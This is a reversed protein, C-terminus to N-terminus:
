KLNFSASYSQGFVDDTVSVLLKSEVFVAVKNGKIGFIDLSNIYLTYSGNPLCVWQSYTDFPKRYPGGGAVVGGNENTVKWSLLQPNAATTVKVFFDGACWDFERGSLEDVNYPLSFVMEENVGFKTSGGIMLSDSFILYNGKPGLGDGRTNTINFSYRGPPVCENYTLNASQKLPGEQIFVERTDIDLLEWTLTHGYYKHADDLDAEILVLFNECGFVTPKSTPAPHNALVFSTSTSNGIKYQLDLFKEEVYVQFHGPYKVGDGGSDLLTLNFVGDPLCARSYYLAGPGEQFPGGRVIVQDTEQHFLEFTNEEPHDDTFFVMFFDNSCHIIEDGDPEDGYYPVSFSFEENLFFSDSGGIMTDNSYILYYGGRKESLLSGFGHGGSNTINFIYRGSAVCHKEDDKGGIIYTEDSNLPGGQLIIESTDYQILTWTLQDTASLFGTVLEIQIMNCEETPSMTPSLTSTNTPQATVVKSPSMTPSPSLTPKLTPLKVENRVDYPPPTVKSTVDVNDKNNTTNTSLEVEGWFVGFLGTAGTVWALATLVIAVGIMGVIKLANRYKAIRAQYLQVTAGDDNDSEGHPDQNSMDFRVRRNGGGNNSSTNNNLNNNNDTNDNDSGKEKAAYPPLLAGWSTVEDAGDDKQLVTKYESEFKKFGLYQQQQQQQQQKKKKKIGFRHRLKTKKEKEKPPPQQLLGYQQTNTPVDDNVSDDNSEVGTYNFINAATTPVNNFEDSEQTNYSNNNMQDYEEPTPKSSSHDAPSNDDTDDDVLEAQVAYMPQPPPQHQNDLLDIVNSTAPMKENGYSSVDNVGKDADSSNTSSEM